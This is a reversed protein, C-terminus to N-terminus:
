CGLAFYDAATVALNGDVDLDLVADDNTDVLRGDFCEDPLPVLDFDCDGDLDFPRPGGLVGDGDADCFADPDPRGDRNDDLNACEGTDPDRVACCEVAYAAMWERLRAQNTARWQEGGGLPEALVLRGTEPFDRCSEDTEPDGDIDCVARMERALAHARGRQQEPPYWYVRLTPPPHAAAAGPSAVLEWEFEGGSPSDPAARGRLLHALHPALYREVCGDPDAGCLTAADASTIPLVPPLSPQPPTNEADVACHRAEYWRTVAHRLAEARPITRAAEQYTRAQVFWNRALAFAGTVVSAAVVMVLGAEVLSLGRQRRRSAPAGRKGRRFRAGGRNRLSGPM